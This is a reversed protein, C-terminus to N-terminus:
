FFITTLRQQGDIVNFQKEEAQRVFVPQLCYFEKNEKDKNKITNMFDEIDELLAKVEKEGWRYGRQYHPIHFEMGELEGISKLVNDSNSM